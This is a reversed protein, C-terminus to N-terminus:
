EVGWAALFRARDFRPNTAAMYIAFHECVIAWDRADHFLPLDHITKAIVRFHQHTMKAPKDSSDKRTAARASLM